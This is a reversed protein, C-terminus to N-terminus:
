EAMLDPVAYGFLSQDMNALGWAAFAVALTKYPLGKAGQTEPKIPDGSM